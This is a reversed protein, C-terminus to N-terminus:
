RRTSQPLPRGNYGQGHWLQYRNIVEGDVIVELPPYRSLREFYPALERADTQPGLVILADQGIRSPLDQRAWLDYQNMRRGGLAITTVSGPPRRLGHALASATTYRDSLLLPSTQLLDPHQRQLNRALASWGVLRRTPLQRHSLGFRVGFFPLHIIVLALLNLGTGILLLRRAAPLRSAMPWAEILLFVGILGAPVPWNAYVARRLSVLLCVGLLLAALFALVVPFPDRRRWALPLVLGAAVFLLPYTFPGFLLLQGGLMELPGLLLQPPEIAGRASLHSLNHALNVWGHQANWLLLPVLGVCALLQAFWFGKSRLLPRCFPVTIAALVLGLPLVLTTYKTMVGLSCALGFLCWGAFSHRRLAAELAILALAWCVLVPTDTTMAVGLAAIMPMLQVVATITLAPWPGLRRRAHLYILLPLLGGLVVAPLRIGLQGDGFVRTSGAILLAVVPGKSYYALDLRRSWDWYHMEDAALDLQNFLLFLVRLLGVVLLLALLLLDAAPLSRDRLPRRTM